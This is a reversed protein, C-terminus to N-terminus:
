KQLCYFAQFRKGKLKRYLFKNSALIRDNDKYNMDIVTKHSHFRQKEM